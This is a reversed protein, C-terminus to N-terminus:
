ARSTDSPQSTVPMGRQRSYENTKGASSEAIAMDAARTVQPANQDDVDSRRVESRQKAAALRSEVIGVKRDRLRLALVASHLM